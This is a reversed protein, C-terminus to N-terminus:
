LTQFVYWNAKELQWRPTDQQIDEEIFTIILLYHDSGCLDKWVQWSFDIIVEPECLTLDIASYTGYGPHLYTSSGDNLLCLNNNYIFEETRRGKTNTQKGGSNSEQESNFDGMLIYPSPLQEVMRNLEQITVSTDSPIYISCM